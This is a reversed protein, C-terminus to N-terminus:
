SCSFPASCCASRNPRAESPSAPITSPQIAFYQERALRLKGPLELAHALALAMAVAVITITLVQLALFMTSGTEAEPTSRKM